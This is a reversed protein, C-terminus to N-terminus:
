RCRVDRACSVEAHVTSESTVGDHSGPAPLPFEHDNIKVMQTQRDVETRFVVHSMRELLLHEEAESNPEDPVEFLDDTRAIYITLKDSGTESQAPTLATNFETSSILKFAPEPAPAPSALACASWALAALATTTLFRM